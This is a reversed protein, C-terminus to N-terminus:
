KKATEKDKAQKNDVREIQEAEQPPETADVDNIHSAQEFVDHKADERVEDLANDRETNPMSDAYETAEEQTDFYRTATMKFKDGDKTVNYKSSYDKNDM